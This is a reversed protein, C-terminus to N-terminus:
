SYALPLLARGHNIKEALDDGDVYVVGGFGGLPRLKNLAPTAVREDQTSCVDGADMKADPMPTSEILV